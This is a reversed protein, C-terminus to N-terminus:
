CQRRLMPTCGPALSPFYGVPLVLRDVRGGEALLALSFDHVSGTRFTINKLALRGSIGSLYKVHSYPSRHVGYIPFFSLFLM